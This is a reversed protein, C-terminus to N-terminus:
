KDIPELTTNLLRAQGAKINRETIEANEMLWQYLKTVGETTGNKPEWGTIAKFKAFDSVYYKQDSPRWEDFHVEPEKGSIKAILDILELLSV